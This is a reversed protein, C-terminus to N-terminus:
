KCNFRVFLVLRMESSRCKKKTISIRYWFRTASSGEPSHAILSALTIERLPDSIHIHINNWIYLFIYIHTYISQIVINTHKIIENKTKACKLSWCTSCPGSIRAANDVLDRVFIGLSRSFKRSVDPSRPIPMESVQTFNWRYYTAGWIDRTVCTAVNAIFFFSPWQSILLVFM